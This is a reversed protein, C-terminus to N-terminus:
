FQSQDGAARERTRRLHLDTRTHSIARPPAAACSSAHRKCARACVCVCKSLCLKRICPPSPQPNWPRWLRFIHGLEQHRPEGERRATHTQKHQTQTHTQTTNAHMIHAHQPESRRTDTALFARQQLQPPPSHRTSRPLTPRAISSVGPADPTSSCPLMHPADPCEFSKQSSFCAHPRRTCTLARSRASRTLSVHICQHAACASAQSVALIRAFCHHEARRIKVFTHQAPHLSCRTAHPAALALTNVLTHHHCCHACRTHM